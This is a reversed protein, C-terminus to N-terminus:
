LQSIERVVVKMTDWLNQYSIDENETCELFGKIEKKIEEKVSIDNFLDNNLKWTYTHKGDNKNTNLVLRLRHSNSLTCPIVETGHRRKDTSSQKM